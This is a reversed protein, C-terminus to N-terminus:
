EESRGRVVLTGIIGPGAHAGIVPGVRSMLFHADPYLEGLRRRLYRADDETTGHAVAIETVPDEAAAIEFLRDLARKRTRVREVPLIEGDRVTLIPKISFITGLLAAGRGLRGGRRLYELTDVTFYLDSSEIAQEAVAIVEMRSAGARAAQAAKIVPLGLGLSASLSDLLEINCHPLAARAANASSITGSLRSSIHISVIDTTGEAIRRYTEEFDGVPPQSTTPLESSSTLREYFEDTTLDVGDRFVDDGFLVRLPVVAIDLESALEPPIDATSDTVVRVPM